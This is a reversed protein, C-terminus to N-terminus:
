FERYAKVDLDYKIDHESITFNQTAKAQVHLYYSPDRIGGIEEISSIELDVGYDRGGPRGCNYGAKAAVASIYACSLDEQRHERPIM